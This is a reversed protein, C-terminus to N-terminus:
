PAPAVAACLGVGPVDPHEQAGTDFLASITGVLQADVDGTVEIVRDLGNTSGGVGSFHLVGGAAIPFSTESADQYRVIVNGATLAVNKMTVHYTFTNGNPATPNGRRAGCMVSAGPTTVQDLKAFGARQKAEAPSWPAAVGLALILAGGVRLMGNM